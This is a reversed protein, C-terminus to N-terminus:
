EVATHQIQPGRFFPASYYEFRSSLLSPWQPLCTTWRNKEFDTGASVSEPL